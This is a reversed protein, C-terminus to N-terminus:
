DHLRDATCVPGARDQNRHFEDLFINKPSVIISTQPQVLTWREDRYFSEVSWGGKWVLAAFSIHKLTGGWCCASACNLVRKDLLISMKFHHFTSNLTLNWTLSDLSEWFEFIWVIVKLILRFINVRPETESGQPDLWTCIQFGSTQYWKLWPYTDTCSGLYPLSIDSVCHPSKQGMRLLLRVFSCKKKENPHYQWPNM